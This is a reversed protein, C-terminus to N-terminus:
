PRRKVFPRTTDTRPLLLVSDAYPFLGKVRIRLPANEDVPNGLRQKRVAIDAQVLEFVDKLKDPHGEYYDYSDMFDKVSVKHLDLIQKYYIKVRERRMSDSNLIRTMEMQQENSYADAISMDVFIASMKERSLYQGPVKDSDGCACLFLWVPLIYKTINLMNVQRM